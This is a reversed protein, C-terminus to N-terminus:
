PTVQQETVNTLINQFPLELWDRPYGMNTLSLHPNVMLELKKQGGNLLHLEAILWSFNSGIKAGSKRQKKGSAKYEATAWIAGQFKQCTPLLGFETGETRRMSPVLQFYIRHSRTAKMKWILNCKTSYWDEQGILLATFTKAWLGVHSFKELQGLCKRGSTATMKKAREKEPQATHSAPFGGVSSMWDETGFLSTQQKLIPTAKQM